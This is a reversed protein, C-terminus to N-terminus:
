RPFERIIQDLNKLLADRKADALIMEGTAGTRDLERVIHSFTERGSTTMYLHSVRGDQDSAQRILYGQTVLSAVARSVIGKDMPTMDVVQSATRGEQDGIAALVRWQSLNIGGVTAAVHSVRRAILDAIVTVKYAVSDDLPLSQPLGETEPASKM